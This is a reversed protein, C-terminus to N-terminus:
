VATNNPFLLRLILLFGNQSAISSQVTHTMVQEEFGVMDMANCVDAYKKSWHNVMDDSLSAGNLYRLSVLM